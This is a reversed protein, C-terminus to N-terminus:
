FRRSCNRKRLRMMSNQSEAPRKCSQKWGMSETLRRTQYRALSDITERVHQNNEIEKELKQILQEVVGLKTQPLYYNHVEKKDGGVVDGGASAGSQVVSKGTTILTV